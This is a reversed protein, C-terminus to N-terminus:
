GAVADMFAAVLAFHLSRREEALYLLALPALWSHVLLRHLHATLFSSIVRGQTWWFVGIQYRTWFLVLRGPTVANLFGPPSTEQGAACAM